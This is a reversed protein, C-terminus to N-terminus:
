LIPSYYIKIYIKANSIYFPTFYYCSIFKMESSELNSNIINSVNVLREEMISILKKSLEQTIKIKPIKKLQELDGDFISDITDSNM